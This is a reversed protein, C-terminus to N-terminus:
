VTSVETLHLKQEKFMEELLDGVSSINYPIGADVVLELLHKKEIESQNRYQISDLGCIYTYFDTVKNVHLTTVAICAQITNGSM